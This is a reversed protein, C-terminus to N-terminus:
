AEATAGRSNVSISCNMELFRLLAFFYREESLSSLDNLSEAKRIRRVPRSGRRNGVNQAARTPPEVKSCTLHHSDILLQTSDPKIVLSPNTQSLVIGEEALKRKGTGM